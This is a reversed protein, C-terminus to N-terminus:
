LSLLPALQLNFSLYTCPLHRECSCPLPNISHKRVHQFQSVVEMQTQGVETQRPKEELNKSAMMNDIVSETLVQGTGSM